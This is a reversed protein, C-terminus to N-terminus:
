TKGCRWNMIMIVIMQREYRRRCASLGGYRYSGYLVFEWLGLAALHLHSDKFVDYLCAVGDSQISSRDGLVTKKM